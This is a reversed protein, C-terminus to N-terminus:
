TRSNITGYSESYYLAKVHQATHLAIGSMNKQVLYLFVDHHEQSVEVWGVVCAKIHPQALMLSAYEVMLEADFHPTVFFTQEGKFGFKICIEGMVINPLTYVFLSPLPTTALTEYYRSDTHGSSEANSFLLAVDEKNELLKGEMLAQSALIGLKSVYDMKHFKPYTMRQNQYAEDCWRDLLTDSHFLKTDNLFLTKNRIVSVATISTM